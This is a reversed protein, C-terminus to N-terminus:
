AAIGMCIFGSVAFGIYLACLLRHAKLLEDNM